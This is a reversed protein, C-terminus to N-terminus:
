AFVLMAGGYVVLAVLFSIVSFGLVRRVGIGAIALLPLAWFPQIMNAVCEGYAVSM